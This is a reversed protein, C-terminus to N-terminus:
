PRDDDTRTGFVIEDWSPLSPRGRRRGIPGTGTHPVGGTRSEGIRPVAGSQRRNSAGATERSVEGAELGTRPVDVPTVQGHNAPAAEHEDALEGGADPTTETTPMAARAGRRGFPVVRATSEAAPADASTDSSEEVSDAPVQEVGERPALGEDSAAFEEEYDNFGHPEREGRRRRLEELLEATEDYTSPAQERQGIDSVAAGLWSAGRPERGIRPQPASPHTAPLDLDEATAASAAAHEVTLDDISAITRLRPAQLPASNGQQSLAVASPSLPVLAHARVDFSWLADREIEDVVFRLGLRWGLEPDKWADWQVRSAAHSELREDIVTGFTAHETEMPDLEGHVRVSVARAQEVVHAREALIPGEFREIYNLAVGTDDAIQQPTRGARILQQIERPAVKPAEVRTHPRPRLADRLADDIVVRCHEGDEGSVILADGDIGIYRLEHM